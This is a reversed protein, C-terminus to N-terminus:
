FMEDEWGRAAAEAVWCPRRHAGGRDGKEARGRWGGVGSKEEEATLHGGDVEEKDGAAVMTPNM